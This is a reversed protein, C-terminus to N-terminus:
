GAAISLNMFSSGSFLHAPCKSPYLWSANQFGTRLEKAKKEEGNVFREGIGRNGIHMLEWYTSLLTRMGMECTLGVLVSCCSYVSKEKVGGRKSKHM